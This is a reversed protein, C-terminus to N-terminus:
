SRNILLIKLRESIDYRNINAVPSYLAENCLKIIHRWEEKKATDTENELLTATVQKVETYFTKDDQIALLEYVKNEYNIIPAAIIETSIAQKETVEPVINEAAGYETIMNQQEKKRGYNWWWSLGALLAIAPVLWIYKHNTVDESVKEKDIKYKTAPDVKIAISDSSITKYRRADADYYSFHVKPIITQGQQDSVFPIEFTKSGTAPFLLKNIDSKESVSFHETNAPWQVIPCSINQFNGGGQITIQLSNNDGATDVPKHVGTSISFNGVAGTFGAPKNKEPLPNVHIVMPDNSVTITHMETGDVTYASSGRYLTITNEVSAIDLKLDGTELPILQVKRIIYSKYEKGHIKEVQPLIDETTMEYVTCGSFAPQKVLRSNSRLRTYLKYIVLLPEGIVCSTKNASVKVFLNNKIKQDANEGPKLLSNNDIVDDDFFDQQLFGGPLQLGTAPVNNNNNGAHATNKVVVTVPECNIQRADVTVTASPISLKGTTTPKLIYIFSTTSESKGNISIQQSSFNPGSVVQWQSFVPPVFASADAIGNLQYEAQVVDEKGLEKTNIKLQFKNQGISKSFM